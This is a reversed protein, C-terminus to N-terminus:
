LRVKTCGPPCSSGLRWDSCRAISLNDCYVYVFLIGFVIRFDCCSCAPYYSVRTPPLALEDEESSEDNMRTTSSYINPTGDENSTESASRGNTMDHDYDSEDATQPIQPSRSSLRPYAKDEDITNWGM